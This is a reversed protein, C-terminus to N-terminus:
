IRLHVSYMSPLSSLRHPTLVGAYGYFAWLVFFLSFGTKVQM